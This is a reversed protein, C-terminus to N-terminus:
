DELLKTYKDTLEYHRLKLERMQEGCAMMKLEQTDMLVVLRKNEQKLAQLEQELEKATSSQLSAARSLSAPSAKGTPKKGSSNEIYIYNKNPKQPSEEKFSGQLHSKYLSTFSQQYEDKLGNGTRSGNLLVSLRKADAQHIADQYERTSYLPVLFCKEIRTLQSRFKVLM